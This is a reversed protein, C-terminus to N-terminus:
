VWKVKCFRESVVGSGDESPRFVLVDQVFFSEGFPVEHTCVEQVLVVRDQSNGFRALLTLESIPPCAPAPPIPMKCRLRRMKTGQFRRSSTWPTLRVDTADNYTTELIIWDENASLVKAALDMTCKDLKMSFVPKEVSPAEADPLEEAAAGM